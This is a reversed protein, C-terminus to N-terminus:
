IEIGNFSINSGPKLIKRPKSRFVASHKEGEDLFMKDGLGFFDDVHLAAVCPTRHARDRRFLLCDDGVSATMNLNKIHHRQCTVFRHLGSEPTGYLPRKAKLIEDPKLSMEPVAKLFVDRELASASQIYARSIDRVYSDGSHMSAITIAIRQGMRSIIPAKTPLNCAGEDRYNQAM